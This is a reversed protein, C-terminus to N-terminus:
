ACHASEGLSIWPSGGGTVAEDAPAEEENVTEEPEEAPAETPGPTEEIQEPEAAPIESGKCGTNLVMVAALLAVVWKKKM